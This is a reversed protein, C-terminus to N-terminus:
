ESNAKQRERAQSYVGPQRWDLGKPTNERESLTGGLHAINFLCAAASSAKITAKFIEPNQPTGNDKGVNERARNLSRIL